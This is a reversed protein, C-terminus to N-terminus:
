QGMPLVGCAYFLYRGMLASLVFAALSGYLWRGADDTRGQRYSHWFGLVCGVGSLALLQGLGFLPWSNSLLRLSERAAAPGSALILPYLAATTLQVAAAVAGVALTTMLMGTTLGERWALILYLLSGLTVATAYFSLHTYCTAWAPVASNTYVCAMSVICAIGASMAAWNVYRLILQDAGRKRLRHCLCLVGLFLSAFFVERSLWSTSLKFVARYAAAPNGLHFFAIAIAAAMCWSAYRLIDPAASRSSRGVVQDVAVLGVSAQGLVTFLVLAFENDM